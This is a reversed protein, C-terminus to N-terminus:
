REGALREATADSHDPSLWLPRVAQWAIHHRCDTGGADFRPAIKIMLLSLTPTPQAKTYVSATTHTPTLYQLM